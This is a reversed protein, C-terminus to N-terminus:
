QIPEGTNYVSVRISDGRDQTWITIQKDKDGYRAAANSIYNALVQEFCMPDFVGCLDNDCRLQVTLGNEALYGDYKELFVQISDRVYLVENQLTVLGSEM